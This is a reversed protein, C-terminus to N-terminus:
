TGAFPSVSKTKDMHASRVEGINPRVVQHIDAVQIFALGDGIATQQLDPQAHLRGACGAGVPADPHQTIPISLHKTNASKTILDEPDFDDDALLLDTLLLM